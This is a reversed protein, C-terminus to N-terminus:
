AATGGEPNAEAGFWKDANPMLTGGGDVHERPLAYVDHYRRVTMVAASALDAALDAFEFEGAIVDPDLGTGTALNEAQEMLSEAWTLVGAAREAKRQLLDDEDEAEFSAESEALAGWTSPIAINQAELDAAVSAPHPVPGLAVDKLVSPVARLRGGPVPRYGGSPDAGAEPGDRRVLGLLANLDRAPLYRATQLMLRLARGIRQRATATKGQKAALRMINALPLVAAAFVILAALGALLPHVGLLALVALFASGALEPLLLGCDPVTVSGPRPAFRAVVIRTVSSVTIEGLLAAAAWGALTFIVGIGM